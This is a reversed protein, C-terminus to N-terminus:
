NVDAVGAHPPGTDAELETGIPMEAASLAVVETSVRCTKDDIYKIGASFNTYLSIYIPCSFHVNDEM